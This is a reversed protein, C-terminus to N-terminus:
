AAKKHVLPQAQEPNLYKGAFISEVIAMALLALLFFWWLSYPKQAADAPVGAPGGTGTSQWLSLTEDPVVALDSERRDPFAAILEHNGNPRRVEWFGARTLKFAPTKTAEALSLARKGDPDIIEGGGKLDVFSDVAYQSPAPESGSLYLASQEIFPVFSAHLPLDNAINDFTSAFVML